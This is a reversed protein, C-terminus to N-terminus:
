KQNKSQIWALASALTEDRGKLLAERSLPVEVDPVVGGGEFRHGNSSIFDAIPHYFADGNPLEDLLAPLAQGSSTQGFIRARGLDQMAGAFVESASATVGDILIAVPGSFPEVRNGAADAFRPNIPLNLENDRMVMKGLSGPEKFFYGSVGVLMGVLGGVNGRLDIILGDDSRHEDVAKNFALATPLMWINFRIIGVRAKGVHVSESTLNAYLPPLNGFQIAAGPVPARELTIERKKGSGDLFLVKVASGPTGSLQHSIARWALFERKRLGLKAPLGAAFKRADVKGARLLIWGPHVGMKAAPGAAEVRTVLADGRSFRISMGATGSDDGSANQIQNEASNGTGIEDALDGPVIAMHSVHLLDIMQQLIDRLEARNGARAARPRYRERIETWDLGNFNTDFYHDHIQNWVADFTELALKTSPQDVSAGFNRGSSSALLFILLPWAAEFMKIPRM